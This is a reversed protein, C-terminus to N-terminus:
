EDSEGKLEFLIDNVEDQIHRYDGALEDLSCAALEEDDLNLWYSLKELAEVAKALKRMLVMNTSKLDIKDAILEEIHDEWYPSPEPRKVLEDSM